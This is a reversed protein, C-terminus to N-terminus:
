LAWEAKGEGSGRRPRTEEWEGGLSQQLQM